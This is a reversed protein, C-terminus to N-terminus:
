NQSGPRHQKMLDHLSVLQIAPHTHVSVIRRLFDWVEEVAQDMEGAGESMESREIERIVFDLDLGPEIKERAKKRATEKSGLPIIEGTSRLILFGHKQCGPCVLFWPRELPNFM